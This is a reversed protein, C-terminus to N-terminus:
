RRRRAAMMGGLGLLAVAGPAPVTRVFDLDFSTNLPDTLGAPRAVIIQLNGVNGAVSAFSIPGEPVYFPSNPDLQYSLETWVGSQVPTFSLIIFAPFAVPGPVTLRLYFNLDQGADHRVRVRVEDLGQALYDGVFGGGSANNAANGRFLIAGFQADATNLDFSTRIFGGGDAGGTASWGAPSGDTTTWNANGGDFNETFPAAHVASATLGAVALAGFVKAGMLM